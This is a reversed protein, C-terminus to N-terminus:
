PSFKTALHTITCTKTVGATTFTCGIPGALLEQVLEGEAGTRELVLGPKRPDLTIIGATSSLSRSPAMSLDTLPSGALTGIRGIDKGLMLPLKTGDSLVVDALFYPRALTADSVFRRFDRETMGAPESVRYTVAISGDPNKGTADGVIRLPQAARTSANWTITVAGLVDFGVQVTPAAYGVIPPLGRVASSPALAEIDITSRAPGTASPMELNGRFTWALPTGRIASELQPLTAIAPSVVNADCCIPLGDLHLVGTELTGGVARAVTTWVGHTVFAVLRTGVAYPVPTGPTPTTVVLAGPRTTGKLSREVDLEIGSSTAGHVKAIVIADSRLVDAFSTLMPVARAPGGAFLIALVLPLVRVLRPM